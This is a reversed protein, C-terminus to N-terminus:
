CKTCHNHSSKRTATLKLKCIEIDL